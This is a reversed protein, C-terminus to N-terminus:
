PLPLDGKLIIKGKKNGPNASLLAETYPHKHINFIEDTTGLEVIEGLYM